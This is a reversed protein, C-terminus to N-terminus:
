PQAQPLLDGQQGNVVARAENTRAADWRSLLAKLENVKDELGGGLLTNEEDVERQASAALAEIDVGGKAAETLAAQLSTEPTQTEAKSVFAEAATEGLAQERLWQRQADSVAIGTDDVLKGNDFVLVRPGPHVSRYWAPAQGSLQIRGSRPQEWQYMRADAVPVILMVSFAMAFGLLFKRSAPSGLNFTKM